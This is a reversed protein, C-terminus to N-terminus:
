EHVEKKDKIAYFLEYWLIATRTREPDDFRWKKKILERHIRGSICCINSLDCNEKNNDLFILSYGDPVPGNEKEWLYRHLMEYKKPATKIYLYGGTLKYISGVPRAHSSWNESICKRWRDENDKFHFGMRHVWTKIVAESRKQHFHENFKDTLEKMSCDYYNDKLFQKMEETLNHSLNLTKRCRNQITKYSRNANFTENFFPVLKKVSMDWYHEILWADQEETFPEFQNM